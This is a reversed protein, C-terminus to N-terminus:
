GEALASVIGSVLGIGIALLPSSSPRAVIWYVAGAVFGAFGGIAIVTFRDRGFKVALLAVITFFTAGGLIAALLRVVSFEYFWIDLAGIISGGLAGVLLRRWWAPRDTPKLERDLETDQM